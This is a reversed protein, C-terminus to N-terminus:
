ACAISDGINYVMIRTIRFEFYVFDSVKLLLPLYGILVFNFRLRNSIFNSLIREDSLETGRLRINRIPSCYKKM